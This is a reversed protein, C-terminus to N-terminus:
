TLSREPSFMFFYQVSSSTSRIGSHGTDSGTVPVLSWHCYECSWGGVESWPCGGQCKLISGGSQPHIGAGSTPLNKRSREPPSREPCRSLRSKDSDGLARWMALQHGKCNVISLVEHTHVLINSDCNLAPRYSPCLDGFRRLIAGQILDLVIYDGISPALYHRPIRASQFFM